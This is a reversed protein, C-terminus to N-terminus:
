KWYDPKKGSTKIEILKGVYSERLNEIECFMDMMFSIMWASMLEEDVKKIMKSKILENVFRNIKNVMTQRRISINRYIKIIRSPM